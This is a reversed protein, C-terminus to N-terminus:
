KCARIDQLGFRPFCWPMANALTCVPRRRLTSSVVSRMANVSPLSADDPDASWRGAVAEAATRPLCSAGILLFEARHAADALLSAADASCSKEADSSSM